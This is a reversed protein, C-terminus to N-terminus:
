WKVNHALAAIIEGLEEMNPKQNKIALALVLPTRSRPLVFHAIQDAYLTVLDNERQGMLIQMGHRGGSLTGEERLQMVTGLKGAQTVAIFTNDNFRNIVFDTHEGRIIAGFVQPAIVKRPLRLESEDM